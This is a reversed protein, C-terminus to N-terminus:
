ESGELYKLASRVTVTDDKLFGIGRNCPVCLLGRIKGTEHDHDVVLQPARQRGQRREERRQSERGLTIRPPEGCIACLGNQAELMVNYDDLTIGFDRRLRNDLVRDLNADNWEAAVDSNCKKCIKRVGLKMTHQKHFESLPLMVHCVRCEQENLNTM